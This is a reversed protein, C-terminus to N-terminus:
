WFFVINYWRSSGGGDPNLAAVTINAVDLADNGTVRDGVAMTSAVVTDMVVKVGSSVAGNVTDKTITNPFVINGNYAKNGITENLFASAAQFANTYFNYHYGTTNDKVELRFEAGTDGFISFVRSEGTAPLDSLDLNFATIVKDQAGSNLRAHEVDSMLTGDPMYHFGIPAMPQNTIPPPAVVANSSTNNTRQNTNSSNSGTNHYSM